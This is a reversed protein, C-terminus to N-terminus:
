QKATTAPQKPIYLHGRDYNNLWERKWPTPTGDVNFTVTDKDAAIVRFKKGELTVIVGPKFPDPEGRFLLKDLLTREEQQEKTVEKPTSKHKSRKLM